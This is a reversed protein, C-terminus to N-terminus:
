AFVETGKLAPTPYDARCRCCHERDRPSEAGCEPCAALVPWSRGFRYGIWGPFGLLLVFLSWTLRETKTAGYRAQRRYCLVAFGVALLQSLTLALAFERLARALAAPFTPALGDELVKNAGVLGVLGLLIMPSPVVAGGSLRYSRLGGPDRLTIAKERCGGGDPKSWCIRYDTHNALEDSPSHWTLLGEGTTTEAFDVTRERLSEPIDYRKLLGGREDLILVCDDRRIALRTPTGHVQDLPGSVLAASRRRPEDLIVQVTREHLDAHYVKGDRGLLYVDWNSVSGHPAKGVGGSPLEPHHAPNPRRQMCIVRQQQGALPGSIPFRDEEKPAEERFGALGLYGICEKSQRDYGAFYASGGPLGDSILYWFTEPTRGDSFARVRQEWGLPEAGEPLRAPLSGSAPHMSEHDPVPILNGDLDLNYRERNGTRRMVWPTGDPKFFLTERVQDAGAVYEGVGVAWLGFLGWVVAFGVALIAALILSSVMGKQTM